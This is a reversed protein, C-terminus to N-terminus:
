GAGALRGILERLDADLPPRSAAEVNAIAHEPKATAPIAATIRGDALCWRLLAEPWSSLGAATLEPPFPRRLLGGEGFPRMVLVGLGLEAALPLVRAEADRERPNLPVQIAHVRGTRMVTELEAFAASEYTTAGLCRINGVGREREMWDLHGRWAVLNHVQLLDIRGGFWGLQRSFHSRGEHVSSTWVKPAVFAERRREGLARSLVAEARGYMPSSDVVRVGVDFAVAIVADAEAQRAAPLDFVRWTGLGVVPLEVGTRGLPRQDV